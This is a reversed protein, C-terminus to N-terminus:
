EGEDGRQNLPHRSVLWDGNADVMPVTEENSVLLDSDIMDLIELDGLHEGYREQCVQM